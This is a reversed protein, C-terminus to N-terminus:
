NTAKSFDLLDLSLPFLDKDPFRNTLGKKGYHLTNVKRLFLELAIQTAAICNSHQRVSWNVGNQSGKEKKFAGITEVLLCAANDGMDKKAQSTILCDCFHEIRQRDKPRAYCAKAIVSCVTALNVPSSSLKGVVFKVVDEHRDLAIMAEEVGLPRATWLQSSGDDSVAFKATMYRVTATHMNNVWAKGSVQCAHTATRRFGRDISAAVRSRSPVNWQVYFDVPTQAECVAKLRHQGDILQYEDTFVLASSLHWQNSKMLAAYKKVVANSLKRNGSNFMLLQEALEPTIVAAVMDPFAQGPKIASKAGLVLSEPTIEDGLGIGRQLDQNNM